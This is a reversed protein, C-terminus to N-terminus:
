ELFAFRKKRIISIIKAGLCSNILRSSVANLDKKLVPKEILVITALSGMNELHKLHDVSFVEAFLPLHWKQFLRTQPYIFSMKSAVFPVSVRFFNM